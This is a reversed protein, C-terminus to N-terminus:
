NDIGKYEWILYTNLSFCFAPAAIYVYLVVAGANVRQSDPRDQFGKLRFMRGSGCAKLFVKRKKETLGDASLCRRCRM